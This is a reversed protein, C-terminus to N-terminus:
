KVDYDNSLKKVRTLKKNAQYGGGLVQYVNVLNNMQQMKTSNMILRSENLSLVSFLTDAYSIAGNDYQSQTMKYLYQSKKFANQQQEFSQKLSSQQSLANDVQEFAQKVTGIYNYYATYYGGKAKDIDAYLSLNLIPMGAELQAAWLNGNFVAELAFSVQSAAGTLSITPFFASKVLGINANNIKLQYEAMAVDPRNELVKSPLNAPIITNQNIEAFKKGTTISGPNHNTLTRLANSVMVINHQTLPIQAKLHDINEELEAVNISSVSGQQYQIDTYNKLAQMDSLIQKQLVLQEKFGLLSFYSAAVQSIVGLRVANFAQKQAEWSLQAIETQKMQSFVNLTYDPMFGVDYGHYGQPNNLLNLTHSPTTLSSSTVVGAVGAGGGYLSPIWGMKVSQFAAKSELLNGMAAQLDNNNALAENMLQNLQPDNFKEWWALQTIDEQTYHISDGHSNWVTPKEISPSHYEPGISCSSLASVLILFSFKRMIDQIWLFKAAQM